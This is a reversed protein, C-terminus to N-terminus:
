SPVPCTGGTGVPKVDAQRQLYRFAVRQASASTVPAPFAPTKHLSDDILARDDLSLRDRLHEKGMRSLIYSVRDLDNELGELRRPATQIIDGAVEYLHDREPSGEVLKLARIMLHRLRHAELRASGIGEALLAWIVQSEKAWKDHGDM